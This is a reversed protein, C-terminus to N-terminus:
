LSCSTRCELADNLYKQSFLFLFGPHYILAISHLLDVLDNSLKPLTNPLDEFLLLAEVRFCLSRKLFRFLLIRVNIFSFGLRERGYFTFLYIYILKWRSKRYYFRLATYIQRLFHMTTKVKKFRCLFLIFDLTDRHECGGSGFIWRTWFNKVVFIQLLGEFPKAFLAVVWLSEELIETLLTVTHTEIFPHNEAFLEIESLLEM